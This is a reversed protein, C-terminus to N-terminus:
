LKLQTVETGSEADFVTMHIATHVITEASWDQPAIHFARNADLAVGSRIAVQAPDMGYHVRLEFTTAPGSNQLLLEAGRNNVQATLTHGAALNLDLLEYWRREAPDGGSFGGVAMAISKAPSNAAVNLTVAQDGSNLADIHITDACEPLCPVSISVSMRPTLVAWDYTGESQPNLAFTLSSETLLREKVPTTIKAFTNRMVAHQQTAALPTSTQMNAIQNRQLYYIEPLNERSLRINNLWSANLNSQRRQSIESFKQADHLPISAMNPIRTM